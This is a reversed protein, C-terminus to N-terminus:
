VLVFFIALVTVSKLRWHYVDCYIIFNTLKTGPFESTLKFVQKEYYEIMKASANEYVWINNCIHNKETLMNSARNCQKTQVSM